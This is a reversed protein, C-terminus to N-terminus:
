PRTMFPFGTHSDQRSVIHCHWVYAPGEASDFRSPGVHDADGDQLDGDWGLEESADLTPFGQRLAGLSTRGLHSQTSLVYSAEAPRPPVAGSLHVEAGMPARRAAVVSEDGIARPYSAGPFLTDHLTRFADADLGHRRVHQFRVLHIHHADEMLNCSEWIETPGVRAPGAPALERGCLGDWKTDNVLVPQVLGASKEVEVLLIRRAAEPTLGGAPADSITEALRVTPPAPCASEHRITQGTTPDMVPDPCDAPLTRYTGEDLIIYQRVIPTLTMRDAGCSGAAPDAADEVSIAVSGAGLVAPRLYYGWVYIDAGLPLPLRVYFSLPQVAQLQGGITVVVAADGAEAPSVDGVGFLAPSEASDSLSASTWECETAVLGTVAAAARFELVDRTTSM